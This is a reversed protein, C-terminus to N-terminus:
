LVGVLKWAKLTANYEQSNKQYMSTATAVTANAFDVFSATPKVSGNMLTTYVIHGPQDWSHVVDQKEGLDMSLLYFWHNPIGSYMHVGGWDNEEDNSLEVYGSMNKVQDDKGLVEDDYALEAKMTRLAQKEGDPKDNIVFDGVLWDAQKVNQNKSYQKLQSGFIDSAAENLAGSQGEYVFDAKSYDTVAHTLEHGIVDIDNTFSVYHSNGDGYVIQKGNWYANPYKKGFHVTSIIDMGRNDLSNRDYIKKFFDVTLKAGNYANLVNRDKSRDPSSVKSGPLSTKNRADYLKLKPTKQNNSALQEMSVRNVQEERREKRLQHSLEQNNQRSKKGGIKAEFRPSMFCQQNGNAVSCGM